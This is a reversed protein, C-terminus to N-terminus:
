PLKSWDGKKYRDLFLEEANRRHIMGYFLALLDLATTGVEFYGLVFDEQNDYLLLFEKEVMRVYWATVQGVSGEFDISQIIEHMTIEFKRLDEVVVAPLMRFISDGRKSRETELQSQREVEARERFLKEAAAVAEKKAEQKQDGSMQFKM